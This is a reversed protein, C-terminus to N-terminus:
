SHLPSCKETLFRGLFRRLSGPGGEWILCPGPYVISSFSKSCICCIHHKKKEHINLIHQNLNRQCAFSNSCIYCVYRKEGEHVRSIHLKMNRKRNFNHKCIDCTFSRAYPNEKAINEAM